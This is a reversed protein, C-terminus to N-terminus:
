PELRTFEGHMDAVPVSTGDDDGNDAPFCAVLRGDDDMVAVIVPRGGTSDEYRYRGPASPQEM